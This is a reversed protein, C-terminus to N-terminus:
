SIPKRVMLGLSIFVANSTLRKNPLHRTGCLQLMPTVFRVNNMILKSICGEVQLQHFCQLCKISFFCIPHFCGPTLVSGMHLAPSLWGSKMLPGAGKGLETLFAISRKLKLFLQVQLTVQVRLECYLKWVLASYNEECNVTSM